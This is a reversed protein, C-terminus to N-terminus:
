PAKWVSFNGDMAKNETYPISGKKSVRKYREGIQRLIAFDVCEDSGCTM